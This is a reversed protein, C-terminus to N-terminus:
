ILKKLFPIRKMVWATGGAAAFVAAVYLVCSPFSGIRHALALFHKEFIYRYINELLMAGFALGGLSLVLQRAKDPIRHTLFFEKVLLYVALTPIVILSNHFFEAEYVGWSGTTTNLYVTMGGCIGIAALSAAIWALRKSRSDARLGWVQEVGYGLLFFFINSNTMLVPAFSGNLRYEGHWILYQLIPIVGVFVVECVTLYLYDQRTMGAALRRLLPLMVLLGLYAYLFWYATALNKSYVGQIYGSWTVPEGYAWARFLIQVASFLLLTLLFRSVRKQYVIRISEQKPLLLAGSMMLFLPVAIKCAVSCFLYGWFFVSGQRGVFLTYGQQGTHNFIVLLIAIVRLCEMYEKKNGLQKM